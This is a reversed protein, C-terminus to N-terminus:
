TLPLHLACRAKKASSKEDIRVQSEPSQCNPLAFLSHFVKTARACMSADHCAPRFPTIFRRVSVPTFSSLRNRSPLHGILSQHRLASKRSHRMRRFVVGVPLEGPGPQLRQDAGVQLWCGRHPVFRGSRFGRYKLDDEIRGGLICQQYSNRSAFSVFLFCIYLNM